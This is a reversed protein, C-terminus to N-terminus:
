PNRRMPSSLSLQAAHGAASLTPPVTLRIGDGAVTWAYRAGNWYLMGSAGDLTERIVHGVREHGAVPMVAESTPVALMRRGGTNKLVYTQRADPNRWGDPGHGHVVALLADSAALGTKPSRPRRPDEVIWNALSDNLSAVGAATPRAAVALDVSGDGNFDGDLYWRGRSPDAVVVGAFIRALCARVDKADPAPVPPFPAPETQAAQDLTPEVERPGSPPRESACGLCCAVGLAVVAGCRRRVDRM